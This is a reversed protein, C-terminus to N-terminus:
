KVFTAGAPTIALRGNSLGLVRRCDQRPLGKCTRYPQPSGIGPRDGCESGYLYRAARPSSDKCFEQPSSEKCLDQLGLQKRFEELGIDRLSEEVARAVPSSLSGSSEDMGEEEEAIQNLGFNVEPSSIPYIDPGSCRSSSLTPPWSRSSRSTAAVGAAKPAASPCPSVLQSRHELEDELVHDDYYKAPALPEDDFAKASQLSAIASAHVSQSNQLRLVAKVEQEELVAVAQEVVMLDDRLQEYEATLNAQRREELQGQELERRLRRQKRQHRQLQVHMQKNRQTRERVQHLACLLRHSDQRVQEAAARNEELKVQKPLGRVAAQRCRQEEAQRRLSQERTLLEQEVREREAQLKRKHMQTEQVKLSMRHISTVDKCLRQDQAALRDVRARMTQLRQEQEAKFKTLRRIDVADPACSVQAWWPDGEAEDMGSGAPVGPTTAGRSVM